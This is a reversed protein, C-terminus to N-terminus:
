RTMMSIASHQEQLELLLQQTDISNSMQVVESELEVHKLLEGKLFDRIGGTPHMATINGSDDIGSSCSDMHYLVPPHRLATCGSARDHEVRGGPQVVVVLSFHKCPSNSFIPLAWLMSSRLHPARRLLTRNFGLTKGPKALLTNFDFAEAFLLSSSIYIANHGSETTATGYLMELHELFFNLSEDSTMKSPAMRDLDRQQVHTWGTAAHRVILAHLAHGGPHM